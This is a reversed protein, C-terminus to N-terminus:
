ACAQGPQASQAQCQVSKGDEIVTGGIRYCAWDAQCNAASVKPDKQAAASCAAAISGYAGMMGSYISAMSRCEVPGLPGAQAKCNCKAITEFSSCFNTQTVSTIYGCSSNVGQLAPIYQALNMAISSLTTVLLGATIIIKKM